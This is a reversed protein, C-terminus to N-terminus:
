TCVVSVNFVYDAYCEIRKLDYFLYFFKVRGYYVLFAKLV